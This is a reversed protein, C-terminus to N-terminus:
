LGLQKRIAEAKSVDENKKESAKQQLEIDNWDAFHQDELKKLQEVHKASLQSFKFREEEFIRILEDIQSQRLKPISEIIRLKEEKTLSISGALLNLFKQEDFNLSHAPIKVTIVKPLRSGLQFNAPTTDEPEQKPPTGGGMSGDDGFDGFPNGGPPTQGSAQGGQAFPNGQTQDAM